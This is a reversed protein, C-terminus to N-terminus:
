IEFEGGPDNAGEPALYSDIGKHTTIMPAQITTLHLKETQKETGCKDVQKKGFMCVKQSM